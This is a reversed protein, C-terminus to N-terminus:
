ADKKFLRELFYYSLFENYIVALVAFSIVFTSIRSPFIHQFDLLVALSLGGQALLGFGLQRPYKKFEPSLRTVLFGTLFKGFVRYLCYVLAFFFLWISDFRVCVGIFVLLLLYAPKEVTMLIRYIREKDKSLNVLWFGVFFNTLLPSFKVASALGSTLMTMGIVVLILEKELRSHGIFLNFLLLLGFSGGLSILVGQWFGALWLGNSDTSPNYFFCLGFIILPCLGGISSIFRLLKVTHQHKSIDDLSLFALGTQATFGGAAALTIAVVMTLSDSIDFCLLMTLYVAAFVLVLTMLGELIAALLFELPFRRLKKIEFQFGFLLGIWGLLLASLPALGKQTEADMLNLFQPGLLLGLLLFEIGTLYFRRAFLPLRFHRFTLRYGSFVLFVIILLTFTVKM